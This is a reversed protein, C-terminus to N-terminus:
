ETTSTIRFRIRGFKGYPFEIRGWLVEESDVGATSIKLFYSEGFVVDEGNWLWTVTGQYQPTIQLWKVPGSAVQLPTHLYFLPSNILGPYGVQLFKFPRGEVLETVVRWELAESYLHYNSISQEVEFVLPIEWGSVVTEGNNYHNAWVANGNTSVQASAVPMFAILALFAGIIITKVKM